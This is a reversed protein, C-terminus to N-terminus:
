IKGSDFIISQKARITAKVKAGACSNAITKKKGKIAQCNIFNKLVYDNRGSYKSM